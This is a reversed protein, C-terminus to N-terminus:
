GGALAGAGQYREWLPRLVQFALPLMLLLYFAAFLTWVLAPPALAALRHYYRLSMLVAFGVTLLSWVLSAVGYRVLVGSDTMQGRRGSLADSLAQRSRRRLAPQRVLDVLVHYGDRELLPNINFLAGVYGAFALQFLVDRVNGRPSLLCALAFIGGVVLDSLPGALSVEIRRRRPEFWAESTDVFAYPFVLVRKIGVRPVRRGFSVLTLGHALEHLVVVLFRGALFVLAGVGVKKAVVFPTGYRRAILALFAVLGAAVILSVLLRAARTFLVYGGQEYVTTIVADANPVIREHPQFLRTLLGPNSERELRSVGALLDHEALDALLRALRGPGERGCRAEAERVLEALGHRGDMRQALEAEPERLRIFTDSRLDKLVFRYEGESSDLRKLSYGSRLRPHSGATSAVGDLHSAGVTPVVLSAGVPVCITRAAQRPDTRREVRLELDGVAIRAGDRLPTAQNVPRGDLQTGYSSGEDEISAGGEGVVIRAHERSVSPDALLIDNGPARGLSITGELAVREGSPLVLDLLDSAAGTPAGCKRCRSSGPELQRHCTGCLM